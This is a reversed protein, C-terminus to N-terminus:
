AFGMWAHNLELVTWIEVQARKAVEAVTRTLMVYQPNQTETVRHELIEVSVNEMKAHKM